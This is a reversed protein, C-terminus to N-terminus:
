KVVVTQVRVRSPYGFTIVPYSQTTVFDGPKIQGDGDQDIHVSVCYSAQADPNPAALSFELVGGKALKTAVAGVVQSAIAVSPADALSWNRLRLEKLGQFLGCDVLVRHSGTDILYKSGTVTGAAGLFTLSAM